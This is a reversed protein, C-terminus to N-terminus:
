IRRRKGAESLLRSAKMEIGNRKMGIQPTAKPAAIETLLL